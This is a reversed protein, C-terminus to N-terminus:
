QIRGLFTRKPLVIAHKSVNKVEFKVVSSKGPKLSLLSESVVLGYPLEENEEPEFLVPIESDIPGHNIRCSIQSCQASKILCDKTNTRVACLDTDVNDEIIDRLNNVDNLSVCPFVCALEPNTMGSKICLEIVNYGVLPLSIDDSTVLFPVLIPDQEDKLRFELEVFGKYPICTGNAATLDLKCDILESINRLKTGPFRRRLFQELLISDQAGTDWLAEVSLANLKCKITCRNGVLKALKSSRKPTLHTVFSTPRSNKESVNSLVQAAHCIAKHQQWHKKQCVNNCYKVLNCGSCKQIISGSQKNRCYNYLQPKVDEGTLGHGRFYGLCTERALMILVNHVFTDKDVANFVIDVSNEWAKPKVTVAVWPVVMVVPSITVAGGM